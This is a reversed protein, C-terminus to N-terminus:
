SASQFIDVTNGLDAHWMSDSGTVCTLLAHCRFLISSSSARYNCFMCASIAVAHMCCLSKGMLGYLLATRQDADRTGGVQPRRPIKLNFRTDLLSKIARQLREVEMGESLKGGTQSQVFFQGHSRGGSGDVTTKVVDVGFDQFMSSLAPLLGPQSATEVSVRTYVEDANNDITVVSDEGASSSTPRDIEAVARTVQHLTRGSRSQRTLALEPRSVKRSRRTGRAIGHCCNPQPFAAPQSSRGTTSAVEPLSQGCFAGAM